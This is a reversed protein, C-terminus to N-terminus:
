KLLALLTNLIDEAVANKSKLDFNVTKERTLISIKNTDHAFGAGSDRLSNLVVMDFNKKLLKTQANELENNTELAFGVSIQGNKKMKGIEFAIDTNRVLEIFMEDDKKKIKEAAITKPRYDAVAASFVFVNADEFAQKVASFMEECSMVRVLRIGPLLATDPIAGAILRVSAGRRAFANAIEFGMKGTSHNSIYRVPDIAERTPGATIVINKGAFDNKEAFFNALVEVIKEPEAMRGKGELGSALEGEEADILFHQKFRALKAVNERVADHAYMDLDMAPAFFVPCRASLYVATLLNDCFGTATKALTNASAPAILMADAWLGLNVHHNWEGANNKVFESLVPRKSLTALTLPTIFEKAANSMVIQVEAGNKILLRTLHATKYAAISATIGLLIKKGQLSNTTM